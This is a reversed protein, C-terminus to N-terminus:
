KPIILIVNTASFASNIHINYITRNTNIELKQFKKFREFRFQFSIIIIIKFENVSLSRKVTRKLSKRYIIKGNEHGISDILNPMDYVNPNTEIELKWFM